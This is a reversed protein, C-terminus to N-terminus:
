GNFSDRPDCGCWAADYGENLEDGVAGEELPFVDDCVPCMAKVTSGTSWVVQYEVDDPGEFFSDLLAMVAPDFSDTLTSTFLGEGEVPLSLGEFLPSVTWQETGVKRSKVTIPRKPTNTNHAM